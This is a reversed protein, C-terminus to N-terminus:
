IFDIGVLCLIISFIDNLLNNHIFAISIVADLTGYIGALVM